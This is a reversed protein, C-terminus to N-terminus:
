PIIPWKVKARLWFLPHQLRSSHCSRVWIKPPEKQSSPQTYVLPSLSLPFSVHQSCKCHDLHSTATAQFLTTAALPLPSPSIFSLCDQYLVWWRKQCIPLAWHIAMHKNINVFYTLFLTFNLAFFVCREMHWVNDPDPSPLALFRPHHCGPCWPLWLPVIKPGPFFITRLKLPVM